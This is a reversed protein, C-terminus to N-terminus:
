EGRLSKVKIDAAIRNHRKDVYVINRSSHGGEEEEAKNQQQQEQEPQM